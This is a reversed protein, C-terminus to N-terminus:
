NNTPLHHPEFLDWEPLHTCRQDNTMMLYRFFSKGKHLRRADHGSKDQLPHVKMMTLFVKRGRESRTRSKSPWEYTREERGPGIYNCICLAACGMWGDMGNPEPKAKAQKPQTTLAIDVSVTRDRELQLNWCGTKLNTEQLMTCRLRDAGVVCQKKKKPKFPTLVAFLQKPMASPETLLASSRGALCFFFFMRNNCALM